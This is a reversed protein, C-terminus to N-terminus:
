SYSAQEDKGEGGLNYKERVRRGLEARRVVRIVRIREGVKEGRRGGVKKRWVVRKM